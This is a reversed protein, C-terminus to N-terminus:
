FFRFINIEGMKIDVLMWLGLQPPQPWADFKDMPIVWCGTGLSEYFAAPVHLCRASSSTRSRSHAGDLWWSDDIRSVVHILLHFMCALCKLKAAERKNTKCDYTNWRTETMPPWAWATPMGPESSMHPDVMPYMLATPLWRELRLLGHCAVLSGASCSAVSISKTGWDLPATHGFSALPHWLSSLSRSIWSIEPPKPFASLKFMEPTVSGVTKCRSPWSVKGVWVRHFQPVTDWRGPLGRMLWHVTHVWSTM